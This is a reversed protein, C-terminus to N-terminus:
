VSFSILLFLAPFLTFFSMLSIHAYFASHFKKQLHQEGMILRSPVYSFLAHVIGLSKTHTVEQRVSAKM